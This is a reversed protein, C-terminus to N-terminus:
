ADPLQESNSPGADDRLMQQWRAESRAHLEAATRMLSEADKRDYGRLDTVTRDSIEVRVWRGTHRGIFAGVAGSMAAWVEPTSVAVSILEMPTGTHSHGHRHRRRVREDCDRRM